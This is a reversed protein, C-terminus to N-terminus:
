KKARARAQTARWQLDGESLEEGLRIKETQAEFKRQQALLKRGQQEEAEQFFEELTVPLMDQAERQPNVITDIHTQWGEAALDSLNLNIRM